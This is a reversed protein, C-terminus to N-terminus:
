LVAAAITYSAVTGRISYYINL